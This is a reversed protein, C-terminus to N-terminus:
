PPDQPRATRIARGRLQEGADKPLRWFSFVSMASIAGVLAFAAPFDAATITTAGRAELTFEVVFAGFAVGTSIALQQGVATLTTARSMHRPGVEAYALTNICTFELSRFFGGCLLVAIIVPLPVGPHFLACAAIFASSILANATLLPRYGFYRVVRVAITKVLAAGIAGSFTVMGSQFPTLGFGLQMLLPLLFPMAGVGIRFISGGVMSARFTPLALLSFDLAPATVRRAHFFYALAAVAGGTILASVVPWPLVDFGAVSLGFALGAVAIGSLVLGSFDIPDLVEARVDEIYRTVLFIGVIGVPVNILFIFQWAGYTTIFGGLPPGLLPGMLSPITLWAMADVLSQKDVTRLLLLRAVPAMMAGGMGQVIRGGVFVLLSPAAACILSGVMFVAIAIRFVNRAGFRDATWGSAPIFVALALLYSTVSLKMMLPTTGLDTAIVPLSTAIVNADMNEMLLAVAVILPV